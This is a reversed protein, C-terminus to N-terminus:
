KKIKKTWLTEAEALSSTLDFGKEARRFGYEVARLFARLMSAQLQKDLMNSAQTLTRLQANTPQYKVKPKRM